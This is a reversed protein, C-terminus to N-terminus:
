VKTTFLTSRIEPMLQEYCISVRSDLTNDLVLKGGHALLKVGGACSKAGSGSSPPPLCEDNPNIILKCSTKQGTAEMILDCYEDTAKSEISEVLSKDCARCLVTVTPENLKILGQVILKQLVVKYKKKDKVVAALADVANDKIDQILDERANMKEVRSAGEAKAIAIKREIEIDKEKQKFQSQLQLKANHVMMQKELAFDNETKLKIENVKEKAEQIIFNCMQSIRKNKDAENM